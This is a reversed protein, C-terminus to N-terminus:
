EQPVTSSDIACEALGLGRWQENLVEFPNATSAAAADPDAEISDVVQDHQELLALVEPSPPPDLARLTSARDRGLDVFADGLFGAVAGAAENDGLLARQATAIDDNSLQCARIVPDDSLQDGVDGDGSDDASGAVVLVLALGLLLVAVLAARRHRRHRTAQGGLRRAIRTRARGAM